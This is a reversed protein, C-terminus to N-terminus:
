VDVTEKLRNQCFSWPSVYLSEVAGVAVPTRWGRVAGPCESLDPLTSVPAGTLDDLIAGPRDPRPPSPCSPACELVPISAEPLTANDSIDGYSTGYLPTERNTGKTTQTPNRFFSYTSTFDIEKCINELYNGKQLRRRNSGRVREVEIPQARRRYSVEPVNFFNIRTIKSVSFGYIATFDPMQPSVPRFYATDTVTVATSTGSLTCYEGKSISKGCSRRITVAKSRILPWTVMDGNRLRNSNL